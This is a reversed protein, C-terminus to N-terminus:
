NNVGKMYERYLEPQEQIVAAVAKEQTIGRERAVDTARKEIKAWAADTDASNAAAKDKSKGVEDFNVSEEIAKSAKTLIAFVEPSASKCVEVLEAEEVPLAKLTAAKAVAEDTIAKEAAAKAVTEAAIKQENLKKFMAQVAPDMSKIVEEFDPEPTASAELSKIKSKMVEGEDFAAQYKGEADAKEQKAKELEEATEAPVEAKAKAMEGRIVDADAKDMKALIEDYMLIKQEKRKYLAIYAESNDGVDVLDVRDVELDFVYNPM